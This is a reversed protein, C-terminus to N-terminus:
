LSSVLEYAQEDAIDGAIIRYGKDAFLRACERGIGGAARTVVAVQDSINSEKRKKAWLTIDEAAKSPQDTVCRCLGRPASGRM